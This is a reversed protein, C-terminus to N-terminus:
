GMSPVSAGANKRATDGNTAVDSRGLLKLKALLCRSTM